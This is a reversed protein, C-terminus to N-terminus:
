GKTDALYRATALLSDRAPIFDQGYLTRTASNNIPTFFGISPLVGRVTGDFLGLVRLLWKPAVKTGIKRDPYAEALMEAVQPLTWYSDAAMVRHGGTEPRAIADVHLRSVDELDVIPLGINPQMPDKGALIREILALSTGFKADMPTGTVLGPNVTTLVMEPHDGVFDWAAREALTKSKVYAGATPHDTDTWDAVTYLHGDPRDVHMIAVMSSTLVVRQAGAAQAARLARLTGDVAPRILDDENKPNNMPFPSATHMLVDVGSMAADWGDDSGLDLEVFSLNEQTEPTAVVTRVEDARDKNRLSGRVAYGADLLDKAIRKAIFGTIGTLLVTKTM